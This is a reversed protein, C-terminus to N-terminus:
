GQGKSFADRRFADWPSEGQQLDRVEEDTPIRYNPPPVNEQGDGAEGKLVASSTPLLQNNAVGQIQKSTSASRFLSGAGYSHLDEGPLIDLVFAARVTFEWSYEITHPAAEEETISFTDFSGIYLISDYYLYISGVLSLNNKGEEYDPLYMAGNNRYLMYLSQFNQWAASYNRATRTLGPGGNTRVADVAYFGAVKGSASIKDQEDGWHEIIPGNRGWNGDNVIKTGKVDFQRPNVLLRLPPTNAMAAMAAQAKKALDAQAKLLAAGIGTGNLGTGGLKDRQKAATNAAESGEPQYPPPQPESGPLPLKSVDVWWGVRRNPAKLSVPKKIFWNGNVYRWFLPFTDIGMRDSGSKQGGSTAKSAQGPVIDEIPVEIHQSILVENGATGETFVIDGASPPTPNSGPVKANYKDALNSLNTVADGIKYQGTALEDELGVARLCGMGFLACSSPPYGNAAPTVYYGPHAYGLRPPGAIDGPTLMFSSYADRDTVSNKGSMSLAVEIVKARGTSGGGYNPIAAGGGGLQGIDTYPDLNRVTASRDLLRGTIAQAPPLVGVVFIQPNPRTLSVPIFEPGMEDPELTLDQYWSLLRAYVGPPYYNSAELINGKIYARSLGPM